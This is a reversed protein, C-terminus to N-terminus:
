RGHPGQGRRLTDLEEEEALATRAIMDIECLDTYISFALHQWNGPDRGISDFVFGNREIMALTKQQQEAIRELAQRIHTM